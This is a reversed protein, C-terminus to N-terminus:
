NMRWITLNLVAAFCTWGLYPVMLRAAWADHRSFAVTTAVIAGILVPIEALGAGPSRLGFFLASWTFNLVLQLCFLTLAWGGQRLGAARWVRWAALGMLIFVTTWVVPFVGDPPNWAPKRIGPYWVRVSTETVLSGAYGTLLSAGMFVLLWLFARM